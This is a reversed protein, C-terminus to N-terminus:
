AQSQAAFYDDWAKLFAEVTPRDYLTLRVLHLPSDPHAAFYARVAEFIVRAARGKPFGFIGTSIAPFAISELGLREALALSGRIAAALKADEDGEGWVPGVAHIVYRCPLNGGGTYAPAEHSVPGHERVWANSERQIIPGGRRAIAAAVGGGHQLYANAANVIADVEERTIDGQVIQLVQGSPFRHEKIPTSM